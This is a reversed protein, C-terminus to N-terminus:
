ITNTHTGATAVDLRSAIAMSPGERQTRDVEKLGDLVARTVHGV